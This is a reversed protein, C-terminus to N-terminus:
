SFDALRSLLFSIPFPDSVELIDAEGIVIPEQYSTEKLHRIQIRPQPDFDVIWYQKIGTRAYETVKRGRDERESGSGRSVIEIALQVDSGPFLSLGLERATRAAAGTMVAVDPKRAGSPTSIDMPAQVYVEAGFDDAARELIRTLVKALYDHRTSPSLEILWGDVLEHAKGEDPLNHLDEVTYPGYGYGDEVAASM